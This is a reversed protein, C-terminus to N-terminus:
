TFSTSDFPSCFSVPLLSLHPSLSRGLSPPSCRRVDAPPTSVTMAMGQLLERGNVRADDEEGVAVMEDHEGFGEGEGGEGGMSYDLLLLRRMRRGDDHGCRSSADRGALMADM